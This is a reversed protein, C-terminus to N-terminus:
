YIRWLTDPEVPLGAEADRQGGTALHAIRGRRSVLVSWGALRGDDVYAAFHRDIRTLRDPDLGVARPDVEVVLEAMAAGGPTTRCGGRGRTWRMAQRVPRAGWAAVPSRRRRPAPEGCRGVPTAVGPNTPRPAPTTFRPQGAPNAAKPQGPPTTPRTPWSPNTPRPPSGPRNARTRRIRCRPAPRVRPATQPL